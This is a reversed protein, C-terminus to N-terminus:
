EKGDTKSPKEVVVGLTRDNYFDSDKYRAVVEDIVVKLMAFVPVATLVGLFGGIEAGAFLAIIVFVPSVNVKKGVINPTIFITDCIQIIVFIILVKFLGWFGGSILALILAISIGTFLGVYPVFCLAGIMIGLNGGGQIGAITFLVAYLSGLVICVTLQGRIFGSFIKDFKLLWEGTTQQMHPPVLSFISEKIKKFRSSAFFTIVIFILMDLLFSVVSFTQKLVVGTTGSIIKSLSEAHSGLGSVFEDRSVLERLNINMKGAYTNAMDWLSVMAPGMKDAANGLQSIIEPIIALLLIGIVLVILIISLITTFTRPIKLKRSFFDVIPEIADAAVFSALLIAAMRPVLIFSLILLSVFLLPIWGKKDFLFKNLKEKTIM